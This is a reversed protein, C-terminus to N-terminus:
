YRKLITFKGRRYDGYKYFRNWDKRGDEFLIEATIQCGIYSILGNEKIYKKKRKRPLKVKM